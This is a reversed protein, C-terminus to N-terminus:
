KGLTHPFFFKGYAPANKMDNVSNPFLINDAWHISNCKLCKEVGGIQVTPAFRANERLPM